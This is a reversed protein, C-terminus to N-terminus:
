DKYSWAPIDIECALGDNLQPYNGTTQADKIMNLAKSCQDYGHDIATSKLTYVAVEYPFTSEVCIFIFQGHTTGFLDRDCKLYHAASVHYGFKSISRAFEEKSADACTKLDAIFHDTRIDPRYKVRLETEPDYCFGSHEFVIGEVAFLLKVEEHQMVAKAMAQAIEMQDVNVIIKGENALLFAAKGAKGANTRGDFKESVAFQDAFTHPELVLAHVLTGLEMAPTTKFVSEGDLQAKYKGMSKLATKINSSSIEPTAHYDDNDIGAHFGSEINSSVNDGENSVVIANAEAVSKEESASDGPLLSITEKKGEENGNEINPAQQHGCQDNGDENESTPNFPKLIM